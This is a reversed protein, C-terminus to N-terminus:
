RGDLLRGRRPRCGEVQCGGHVVASHGDHLHAEQRSDTAPRPRSRVAIHRRRAARRRHHPAGRRLPDPRLGAGPEGAGARDGAPLPLHLLGRDHRGQAKLAPRRGGQGARHHRSDGARAAFRGRGAPWRPHGFLRRHLSAAARAPEGVRAHIPRVALHVAGPLSGPRRRRRSERCHAARHLDQRHRLGDGAQRQRRKRPRRDRRRVRGAPTAAPQFAHAAAGLRGPRRADPRALRFAAGGFRRLARRQLRAELREGDQRREPGVRRRHGRRHPQHISGPGVRLRVFGSAAQRRHHRACLVQVPHRLLRQRRARAGGLRHGHGRPRLGPLARAMRGVAVRQRVAGRVRPRRHLIEAHPARFACGERTREGCHFPASRPNPPLQFAFHPRLALTAAFRVYRYSGADFSCPRRDPGAQM